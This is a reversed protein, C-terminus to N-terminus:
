DPINGSPLFRTDIRTTVAGGQMTLKETHHMAGQIDWGELILLGQDTDIESRFDIMLKDSAPNPFIKMARDFTQSGNADFSGDIQRLAGLSCSNVDSITISMLVASNGDYADSVLIEVSQVQDFISVTM